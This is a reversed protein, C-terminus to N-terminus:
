VLDRTPLPLHTYSVPRFISVGKETNRARIGEFVGTGYHLTHTMVNIQASDWDVFEGDFWIFDSKEM